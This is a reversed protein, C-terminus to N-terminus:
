GQALNGRQVFFRQLSRERLMFTPKHRCYDRAYAWLRRWSCFTVVPDAATRQAQLVSTSVLALFGLPDRRLFHNMRQRPVLNAEERAHIVQWSWPQSQQEGREQEYLRYGALMQDRHRQKTVVREYHALM